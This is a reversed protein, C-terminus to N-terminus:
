EDTRREAIFEKTFDNILWSIVEHPLYRGHLDFSKTHYSLLWGLVEQYDPQASPLDSIKTIAENKGIFTEDDTGIEVFPEDCASLHELCEIAEQRSILDNSNNPIESSNVESDRIGEKFGCNICHGLLVAKMSESAGPMQTQSNAKEADARKLMKLGKRLCDECYSYHTYSVQEMTQTSYIGVDKRCRLCLLHFKAESDKLAEVAVDFAEVCDDVSVGYDCKGCQLEEPCNETRCKSLRTLIMIAKNPTMM